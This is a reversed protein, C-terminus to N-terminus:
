SIPGLQTITRVRIDEVSKDTLSALAYAFDYKAQEQASPNVGNVTVRALIPNGNQDTQGTNLYITLAERKGLEKVTDGAAMNECGKKLKNQFENKLRSM